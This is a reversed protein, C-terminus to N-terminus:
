VREDTLPRYEITRASRSGVIVGGNNARVKRFVDYGQLIAVEWLYLPCAAVEYGTVFQQVTKLLDYSVTNQSEFYGLRKARSFVWATLGEEVVIARGGDQTEDAEPDTKRKRKILSRFTPSWHLVAAHALHFVDHYRYGDEAVISDTLADGIFVGNWQLYTQGSPRERITIEFSDPLREDAPFRDDFKPLCSAEPELFRGSAKCLNRTAVARLDMDAAALAATYRFWFKRLEDRAQSDHANIRLLAGTSTGLDLLTDELVSGRGGREVSRIEQDSAQDVISEMRVGLRRCLAAFYWLADGFEEEVAEKYEPYSAKDRVHKKIAALIGGVEGFLGMLVPTLDDDPLRDTAGIKRTYDSFVTLSRDSHIEDSATPSQIRPEIM